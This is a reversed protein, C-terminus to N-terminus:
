GGGTGTDPSHGLACRCPTGIVRWTWEYHRHVRNWCHRISDRRERAMGSRAMRLVVISRPLQNSAARRAARRAAGLIATGRYRSIRWKRRRPGNRPKAQLFSCARKLIGRVVGQRGNKRWSEAGKQALWLMPMAPVPRVLAGSELRFRNPALNFLRGKDRTAAMLMYRLASHPIYWYM